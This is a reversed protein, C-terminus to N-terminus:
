VYMSHEGVLGAKGNGAVILQVSKDMWRNRGHAASGHWFHEACEARSVPAAADDLCVCFAASELRELAEAAAPGGRELLAARASAWDDRNSHTLYGLEPAHTLNSQARGVIDRLASELAALSYPQGTTPDSADLAYPQGRCMVLVHNHLSPDHLDYSDRGHRPIRCAHFMYKYATSDLVKAKPPRGVADAPLQGSCVQNRYAIGAQILAAARQVGAAAARPDDRFHFFYSVNVTVPDRVDLYGWTNWWHQLWSSDRYDRARDLLRQQLRRAQDEFKEVCDEFNEAEQESRALPLATPVLLRLTDPVAPVPLRPLQNQREYLPGGVHAELWAEERYDGRCSV